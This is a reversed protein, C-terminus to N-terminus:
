TTVMSDEQLWKSFEKSDQSPPEKVLYDSKGQAYLFKLVGKSWLKFNGEGNLKVATISTGVGPSPSISSAM